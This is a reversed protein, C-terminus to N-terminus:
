ELDAHRSRPRAKCLFRRSNGTPDLFYELVGIDLQRAHGTVRQALTPLGHKCSQDRAFAIRLLQGIERPSGQPTLDWLQLSRQFAEDAIVM